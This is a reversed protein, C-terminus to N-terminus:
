KRFRPVPLIENVRRRYDLYAQGFRGTLYADEKGIRLKFVLFAVLPMALLLWCRSVLALGPILFVIWASYIPHRVLGFVGSTALEDKGYAATIARGAAVLFIGGVGLLLVGVPALVVYIGSPVLLWDPWCLTAAATVAGYVGASGIISPGVGWISVERRSNM